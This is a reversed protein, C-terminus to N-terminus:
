EEKINDIAQLARIRDETIGHRIMKGFISAEEKSADGRNITIGWTGRGYMVEVSKLRWLMNESVLPKTARGYGLVGGELKSFILYRIGNVFSELSLKHYGIDKHDVNLSNRVM